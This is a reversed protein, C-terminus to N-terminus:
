RRDGRRSNYTKIENAAGEQKTKKDKELFSFILMAADRSDQNTRGTWGTLKAFLEAENKAAKFARAKPKIMVLQCKYHNIVACIMIAAGKCMGVHQSIKNQVAQANEAGPRHRYYTASDANVDEVFFVVDPRASHQAILDFLDPIKISRVSVLQGREIIALGPKEIDPDIGIQIATTASQKRM